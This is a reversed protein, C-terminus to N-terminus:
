ILTLTYIRFSVTLGWRRRTWGRVMRRGRRGKMTGRRRRLTRDEATPPRRL